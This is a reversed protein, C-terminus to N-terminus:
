VPDAGALPLRIIFRTGQGLVSEVRVSGGSAEVIRKVISLGLGTGPAESLRLARFFPQFARRTEDPSMGLGNDQIWLEYRDGVCGGTVEVRAEVNARRYKVANSLLNVLAQRLLSTAYPVRAPATALRLVVNEQEFIPALEEAARAAAEAPDCVADTICMSLRSLALLDEILAQMRDVGRRIGALTSASPAQGASLQMAGLSIISLPGRLDHAVRGSFADLERNRSELLAERRHVLRTAWAGVILTLVLGIAPLLALLRSTSRQLTEALAMARHVSEHELKMLTAADQDVAAFRDDLARVASRATGDTRAGEPLQVAYDIPQEISQLDRKFRQWAVAENPQQSLQDYAREADVCDRRMQTLQAEVQNTGTPALEFITTDILIREQDVDRTIRAVLEVGTLLNEIIQRTELRTQRTSLMVGLNIAAFLLAIAGFAAIL